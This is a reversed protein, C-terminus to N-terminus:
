ILADVIGAAGGGVICAIAVGGLGQWNIDDGRHHGLAMKGAAILFGIFCAVYVLNVAWGMLTGLKQNADAPLNVDQPEPPAALPGTGLVAAAEYLNFLVTNIM